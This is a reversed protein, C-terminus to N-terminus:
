PGRQPRTLLPPTQRRHRRAAPPPQPGPVAPRASRCTCRGCPTVAPMRETVTRTQPQFCPVASPSTATPQMPTWARCSPLPMNTSRGRSPQPLNGTSGQHRDANMAAKHVRAQQQKRGNAVTTFFCRVSLQGRNPQHWAGPVSPEPGDWGQSAVRAAAATAPPM